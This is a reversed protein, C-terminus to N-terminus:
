GRRNSVVETRRSRAFSPSAPGRDVGYVTFERSDAGIKGIEYRGVVLIGAAIMAAGAPICLGIRMDAIM